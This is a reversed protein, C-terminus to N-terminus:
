FEKPLDKLAFPIKFEFIGTAMEGTQPDRTTSSAVVIENLTNTSGSEDPIQKVWEHFRPERRLVHIFSDRTQLVAIKDKARTNIEFSVELTPKIQKEIISGKKGTQTIETTQMGRTTKLLRIQCNPPTIDRLIDLLTAFLVRNAIRNQLAQAQSEIKPLDTLPGLTNFTQKLNKLQTKSGALDSRLSGMNWYISLAWVTIFAVTLVGVFVTLRLPDLDRERQLQQQEYFLNLQLM